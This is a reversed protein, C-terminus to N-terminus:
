ISIQELKDSSPCIIVSKLVDDVQDLRVALELSEDNTVTAEFEFYGVGGTSMMVRKLTLAASSAATMQPDGMGMVLLVAFMAILPRSRPLRATM